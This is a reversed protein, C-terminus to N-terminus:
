MLPSLLRASRDKFRLWWSHQDLEERTIERSQELNDYFRREVAAAFAEDCVLASIEFNIRFSRFDMNASGIIARRGDAVVLKAHLMSPQYEYIRAGADLLEGYYSRAAAAAMRVDNKDPAPVLVRVDLGRLAATQLGRLMAEDPIFYPTTLLISKEATAVLSFFTHRIANYQQDPGSPIVAVNTAAGGDLAGNEKAAPVDLLEDAAFSWDEAFVQALDEVAPGRLAIHSDVFHRAGRRRARGSYEDAMNAGGTFGIRGDVVVLKRHNRFNVAWRRKLSFFPLFPETKGGADAIAKLRKADLGLSGYYDYILRVEVGAAAKEALLDLFRRGTEDNGIIYYEAWVYHKAGAVAEEIQRFATEDEALLEVHNGSTPAADSLKEALRLLSDDISNASMPVGAPQEAALPERSKRWDATSRRRRKRTRRIQPHAILFYLLVGVVPLALIAFIWALTREVGAARYVALVITLLNVIALVIFAIWFWGPM